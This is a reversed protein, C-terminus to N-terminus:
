VKIQLFKKEGFKNVITQLKSKTKKEILKDVDIFDYHLKRALAKGTLSKGSGAM